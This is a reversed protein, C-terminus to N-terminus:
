IFTLVVSLGAVCWLFLLKMLLKLLLTQESPHCIALPVQTSHMRDEFVLYQFSMKKLIDSFLVIVFMTIFKYSRDFILIEQGALYHEVETKCWLIKYTIM